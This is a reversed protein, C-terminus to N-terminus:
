SEKDVIRSNYLVRIGSMSCSAMEEKTAVKKEHMEQAEDLWPPQYEGKHSLAYNVIRMGSKHRSM